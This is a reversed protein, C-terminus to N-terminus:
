QPIEQAVLVAPNVVVGVLDVMEVQRSVQHKLGAVEGQQLQQTLLMVLFQTEGMLLLSLHHALLAALVL